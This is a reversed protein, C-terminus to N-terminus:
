KVEMRTVKTQRLQFYTERKLVLAIKIVGRLIWSSLSNYWSGRHSRHPLSSGTLCEATIGFAYPWQCPNSCSFSLFIRGQCHPLWLSHTLSPSECWQRSCMTSLPVRPIFSSSQLLFQWPFQVAYESM